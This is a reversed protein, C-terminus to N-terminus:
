ASDKVVDKGDSLDSELGGQRYQLRNSAELKVLLSVYDALVWEDARVKVADVGMSEALGPSM